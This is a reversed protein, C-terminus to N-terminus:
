SEFASHPTRLASNSAALRDAEQAIYRPSKAEAEAFPHNEILWAIYAFGKIM